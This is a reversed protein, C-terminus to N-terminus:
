KCAPYQTGPHCNDYTGAPLVVVATSGKDTHITLTATKGSMVAGGTRSIVTGSPDTDDCATLAIAATATLVTAAVTQAIRNM